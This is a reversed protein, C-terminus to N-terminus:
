PTRTREPWRREIIHWIPRKNFADLAATVLYGFIFGLAVLVSAMEQRYALTRVGGILIYCMWAFYWFHYIRNANRKAEKPYAGTFEELAIFSLSALFALPMCALFFGQGTWRDPTVEVKQYYAALTAAMGALGICDGLCVTTWRFIALGWPPRTPDRKSRVLEIVWIAVPSALLAILGVLGPNLM